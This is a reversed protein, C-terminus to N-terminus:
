TSAPIIKHLRGLDAASMSVKAKRLLNKQAAAEYMLIFYLKASQPWKAWTELQPVQMALDKCGIITSRFIADLDDSLNATYVYDDATFFSCLLYIQLVPIQLAKAFKEITVRKCSPLYVGGNIVGSLLVRNVGIADAVAGITPTAKTEYAMNRAYTDLALHLGRQKEFFIQETNKAGNFSQKSKKFTPKIKKLAARAQDLANKTDVSKRIAKKATAM